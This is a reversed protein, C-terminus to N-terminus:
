DEYKRKLIESMVVAERLDFDREEEDHNEEQKPAEFDSPSKSRFDSIYDKSQPISDTAEFNSERRLSRSRPTSPIRQHEGLAEDQLEEDSQTPAVGSQFSKLLKSIVVGVVILGWIISTFDFDESM